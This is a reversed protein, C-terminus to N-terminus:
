GSVIGYDASGVETLPIIELANVSPRKDLTELFEVLDLQHCFSANGLEELLIM